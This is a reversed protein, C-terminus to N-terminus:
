EKENLSLLDHFFMFILHIAAWFYCGKLSCAVAALFFGVAWMTHRLRRMEDKADM